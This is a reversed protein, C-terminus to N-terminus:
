RFEVRVNNKEVVFLVITRLTFAVKRGSSTEAPKWNGSKKICRIVEAEMGYGCNSDAGIYSLRGDPMVVFHLMVSYTGPVAKNSFPVVININDKLFKHWAEKGGPYEPKIAVAPLHITAGSSGADVDILTSSSDLSIRQASVQVICFLALAICCIIRRSKM